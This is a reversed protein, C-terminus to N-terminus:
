KDRERLIEAVVKRHDADAGRRIALRWHPGDGQGPKKGQSEEACYWMSGSWTVFCGKPYIDREEWVGRYDFSPRKELEAIRVRAVDLARIVLELEAMCMAFFVEDLSAAAHPLHGVKDYVDCLVSNASERHKEQLAARYAPDGLIARMSVVDHNDSATSFRHTFEDLAARLEAPM